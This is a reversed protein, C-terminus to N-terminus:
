KGKEKRKIRYRQWEGRCESFSPFEKEVNGETCLKDIRDQLEFVDFNFMVPLGDMIQEFNKWDPYVSELYELVVKKSIRM